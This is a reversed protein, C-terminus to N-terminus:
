IRPFLADGKHVVTRPHLGGWATEEVFSSNESVTIAMRGLINEASAPIIPLLAFAIHRLCEVLQYLLVSIDKGAKVQEWPKEESVLTDCKKVMENILKVVDHFAYNKMAEHYEKWFKETDFVDPALAPVISDSYKEIMTLVRSTLNGIGNVLHSTYFDKMKEDSYDGDQYASIAGLFYFRTADVGYVNVIDAPAIVNGISKSMKEGEVTVYGHVFEHTPFPVRASLLMGIWYLAHFRTIGKGIVHVVERKEAGEQLWYKTYAEGNDAFDLANIYNSLADFWVYMIQSADHPVPVGWEKARAISRSISFDELGKDIFGLMENKRNPPIIALADQELLSRIENSYNSLKFFYNEETVSEVPKKHERCLGNELEDETYFAECGICYLGTYNKTYIDEPKCLSWLKQAGRFHRDETTRIFVDYSINLLQATQEFVAAHTDVFHIVSEGATEAAQVNKLSNEDTGTCFFVDYGSLRKYRAMVDTQMFELAHGIHPTGNVYPIATSIFFPKKM